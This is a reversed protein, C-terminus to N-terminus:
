YDYQIEKYDNQMGKLDKQMEENDNQTKNYGKKMEYEDINTNRRKTITKLRTADTQLPVVDSSLWKVWCIHICTSIVILSVVDSDFLKDKPGQQLM